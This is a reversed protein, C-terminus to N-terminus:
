IKWKSPIILNYDITEFNKYFSKKYTKRKNYNEFIERLQELNQFGVVVKSIRKENLVFKLCFNISDIKKQEVFNFFKDLKNKWKNFYGPYKKKLLIGQLFVSRAHIKIKKFKKLKYIKSKLLRQDFINFPVQVIEFNFFNLHKHIKEPFYTSIGIKKILGDKKLNMFIRFIKALYYDNNLYDDFNHLLLTDIYKRNLRKLSIQIKKYIIFELKKNSFNKPVNIKSIIFFKKKSLEGIINESNKYDHATDIYKLKNKLSFKFIKKIENKKKMKTGKSFVGYNNGFQAGGLVIKNSPM